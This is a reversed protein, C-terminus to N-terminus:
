IRSLCLSIGMTDGMTDALYYCLVFEYCLLMVNFKVNVNGGSLKLKPFVGLEDIIRNKNM